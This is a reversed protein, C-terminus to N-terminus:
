RRAYLKAKSDAYVNEKVLRFNKDIEMQQDPSLGSDTYRTQTIVWVRKSQNLHAKFDAFRQEFPQHPSGFVKFYYRLYWAYDSFVTQDQDDTKLVEIVVERWEEFPKRSYIPKIFLANMAYSFVLVGIILYRRIPAKVLDFGIAILTFLAPLIIISYKYELMPMRVWSYILPVLFCLTIWGPLLVSEVLNSSTIRKSYIQSLSLSLLFLTVICTVADRFYVWYFSIPFYWKLSQAHFSSIGLDSVVVPLWHLFSLGILVGSFISKVLFQIEFKEMLIISIGFLVFQSFFVVLGFYHTNLLLSTFLIYFFYDINIKRRIARIFFLFSLTTLLFVLSYFRVQRSFDIHFYNISTLFSTM